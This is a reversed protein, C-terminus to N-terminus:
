SRAPHNQAQFLADFNWFEQEVLPGKMEQFGLGILKVRLHDLFQRYPNYRGPYITRPKTNLSYPKFSVNKWEGSSILRPTLKSVEDVTKISKLAEKTIAASVITINKEEIEIFGRILLQDALKRVVSNKGDALSILAKQLDLSFKSPNTNDELEVLGKNIKIIGSKRLIGIGAPIDGKSFGDMSNLNEMNTPGNTLIDIIRREVLGKSAEKGRKTLNHLVTTKTKRDILKKEVLTAIGGELRGRDMDLEKALKPVEITKSEVIKQLIRLTHPTLKSEKM